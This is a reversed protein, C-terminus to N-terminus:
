GPSSGDHLRGAPGLVAIILLGFVGFLGGLIAGLAGREKPRGIYYGLVACLVWIAVVVLGM